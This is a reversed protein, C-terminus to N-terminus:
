FFAGEAEQLEHRPLTLSQNHWPNSQQVTCCLSVSLHHQCADHSVRHKIIRTNDQEPLFNGLISCVIKSVYNSGLKPLLRKSFMMAVVHFVSM